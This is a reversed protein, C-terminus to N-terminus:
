VGGTVVRLQVLHPFPRKLPRVPQVVARLSRSAESAEPSSSRVPKLTGELKTLVGLSGTPSKNTKIRRRICIDCLHLGCNQSYLSQCVLVCERNRVCKQRSLHKGTQGRACCKNPVCIKHGPCLFINRNKNLFM